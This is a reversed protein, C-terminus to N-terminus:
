SRAPMHHPSNVAKAAQYADNAATVFLVNPHV